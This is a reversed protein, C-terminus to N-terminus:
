KNIFQKGKCFGNSAIILICKLAINRKRNAKVKKEYPKSKDNFAKVNEEMEDSFKLAKTKKRRRHNLWMRTYKQKKNKPIEFRKSSSATLRYFADCDFSRYFFYLFSFYSHCYTFRTQAMLVFTGTVKQEFFMSNKWNKVREFWFFVCARKMRNNRRKLFPWCFSKHQFLVSKQELMHIYYFFGCFTSIEYM